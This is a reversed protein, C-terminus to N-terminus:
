DRVRGSLPQEREPFTSAWRQFAGKEGALWEKLCFRVPAPELASEALRDLPTWFFEIHPEASVVRRGAALGPVDIRFILNVECHRVGNQLFTHEVCALFPGARADLGLEELVERELAAIASEGFEVHGGPLYTNAAGLTHCVLLAGEQVCAGRALIEVQKRMRKM